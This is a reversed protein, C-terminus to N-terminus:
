LQWEIERWWLYLMQSDGKIIGMRTVGAPPPFKNAITQFLLQRKVQPSKPILALLTLMDKESALEMIKDISNEGGNQYDYKVMENRFEEPADQRFPTGIRSGSRIECVYGDDLYIIDGNKEIETFGYKVLIRANDHDDISINLEGGRDAIIYNKLEISFDPMNFTNTVNISGRRFLIRNDGDKAKLLVILSNKGVEVNGVKPVRITARSSNETLLSQGQSIKGSHDQLGNIEVKGEHTIVKWPSNNKQYDYIFYGVAILLLPLLIFLIKNWNPGSSPLSSSKRSVMMTKSVFSKRLAGRAKQLQKEQRTQAKRLKKIDGPKPAIEPAEDKLSRSLLQASFIQVIDEPPDTFYPVDKLKDFFIRIKKYENFCKDCTHIHGEISRKVFDDLQEDVFDHLSIKVEECTM